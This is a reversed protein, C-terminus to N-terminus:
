RFRKLLNNIVYSLLQEQFARKFENKLNTVNFITKSNQFNLKIHQKNIQKKLSLIKLQNNIEEFSNYSNSM